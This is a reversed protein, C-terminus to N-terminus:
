VQNRWSMATALYVGDGSGVGEIVLGFGNETFKQAAGPGFAQGANVGDDLKGLAADKARQKRGGAGLDLDVEGAEALGPAFVRGVAVRGIGAVAEAVLKKGFKLLPVGTNALVEVLM